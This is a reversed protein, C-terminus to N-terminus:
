ETSTLRLFDELEINDKFIHDKENVDIEEKEAMTRKSVLDFKIKSKKAEPLTIPIEIEDEKVEITKFNKKNKMLEIVDSLRSLSDKHNLGMSANQKIDGIEASM